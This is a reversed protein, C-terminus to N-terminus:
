IIKDKVLLNALVGLKGLCNEKWAFFQESLYKQDFINKGEQHWNFAFMRFLGNMEYVITKNDLTYILNTCDITRCQSTLFGNQIVDAELQGIVECNLFKIGEINKFKHMINPNM